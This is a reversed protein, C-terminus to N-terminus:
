KGQQQQPFIHKSKIKQVADSSILKLYHTAKISSIFTLKKYLSM